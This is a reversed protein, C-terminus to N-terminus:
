LSKHTGLKLNWVRVEEIEVQLQIWQLHNIQQREDKRGQQKCIDGDWYLKKYNKIWGM